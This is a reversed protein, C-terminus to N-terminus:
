RNEKQVGGIDELIAPTKLIRISKTDTDKLGNNATATLKVSFTGPKDFVAIAGTRGSKRISGVGKQVITFSSKGLGLEAARAATMREGDVTYTSYDKAPVDHGVYAKDPLELCADVASVKGPEDLPDTPNGPDVPDTGPDQGGGPNDGPEGGNGPDNGPEGGPNQGGTGPDNPNPVEGPDPVRLDTFVLSVPFEFHLGCAGAAAFTGSGISYGASDVVDVGLTIPHGAELAGNKGKIFSPHIANSGTDSPDSENYYGLGQVASRGNGFVSYINYGWTKDVLPVTVAMGPVYDRLSASSNNFHFIPTATFEVKGNKLAVNQPGSEAFLLSCDRWRYNAFTVQWDKGREGESVLQAIEQPVSVSFVAQQSAQLYSDLSTVDKDDIRIKDNGANGVKWYGGSYHWLDLTWVGSVKGATESTGAAAESAYAPVAGAALSAATLVAVARRLLHKWFQKM